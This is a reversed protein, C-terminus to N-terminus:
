MYMRDEPITRRDLEQEAELREHLEAYHEAVSEAFAELPGVDVDLDYLSSATSLLRIAAEVDPMQAHVPTVLVCVELDSDLAREVLAANVGDLFGRGMPPVDAGALRRERFDDTAVYFTRHEEPGHAIPIGSLITVEDVDGADVWELVADGFSEAAWVPVFLEGVLVTVALGDAGFLRTHHRPRGEEFPTITPLDRASLHGVAELDLHDALYDVATLGALGFQSFGAVVANSPAAETTIEFSPAALDDTM